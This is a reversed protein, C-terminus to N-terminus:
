LPNHTTTSNNPTTANDTNNHAAFDSRLTDLSLGVDAIIREFSEWHAALVQVPGGAAAQRMGREGPVFIEDVGPRRRASKLDRVYGDTKSRVQDVSMWHSPDIVLIAAGGTLSEERPELWYSPPGPIQPSTRAGPVILSALMETIVNYAYLRPTSFVTAARCDSVRGYEEMRVFYPAPDNSLQGTDPDVLYPGDLRRGAFYAESLNGDHAEIAQTDCVLAPLGSGDPGGAPVGACFPAGSLKNEMGGWPSVLPLSNNTALAFCGADTARRVYYGFAGADNFDRCMGIALGSRRAKSIAADTAITLAWQGSSSHADVLVWSPGEDVVEPVAQLDLTGAKALLVPIEFVGLGQTFKGVRDGYSVAESMIDAHEHSAGLALMVRFYCYQLFDPDADRTPAKATM